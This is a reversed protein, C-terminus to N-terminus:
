GNSTFGALMIKEKGGSLTAILAFLLKNMGVYREPLDIRTIRTVFRKQLDIINKKELKRISNNIEKLDKVIDRTTESNSDLFKPDVARLRCVCLLLELYDRLQRPNYKKFSGNFSKNYNDFAKPIDEKVERKIERILVRTISDVLEPGQPYNYLDFIWDKRQWCVYGISRLLSKRKRELKKDNSLYVRCLSNYMRGFIDFSDENINIRRSLPIWYEPLDKEYFFKMFRNAIQKVSYQSYNDAFSDNYFDGFWIVISAVNYALVGKEQITLSSYASYAKDTYNLEVPNDQNLFAAFYEVVYNKFFLSLEQLASEKNLFSKHTIAYQAADFIRQICYFRGSAANNFSRLINIDKQTGIIDDNANIDKLTLDWKLHELNSLFDKVDKRLFIIDKETIDKYEEKYEPVPNDLQEFDVWEDNIILDSFKYDLPRVNLKFPNVAGYNYQLKLEVEINTKLPKDIHICAQKYPKLENEKNERLLPLYYKDSGAYLVLNKDGTTLIVGDNMSKLTIKQKKQSKDVLKLQQYEGNELTEISMDPIAEEWLAENPYEKLRKRIIQCGSALAESNLVDKEDVSEFLDCLVITKFDSRGSNLKSISDKCNKIHKVIEKNCLESKKIYVFQNDTEIPYKNNNKIVQSLLKTDVIQHGFRREETNLCSNIYEWAFDIYNGDNIADIKILTNRRFIPMKSANNKDYDVEIQVVSAQPGDFDVCYIFRPIKKFMRLYTYCAAVSRPVLLFRYGDYEIIKNRLTYDFDDVVDPMLCIFRYDCTYLDANKAPLIEESFSDRISLKAVDALFTNCFASFPSFLQRNGYFANERCEYYKGSGKEFEVYYPMHRSIIYDESQIHLQNNLIDIVYNREGEATKVRPTINDVKELNNAIDCSFSMLSDTYDRYNCFSLRGILENENSEIRKERQDYENDKFYREYQAVKIPLNKISPINDVELTSYDVNDVNPLNIYDYILGGKVNNNILESGDNKTDAEKLSSTIIDNIIDTNNNENISHQFYTKIMALEDFSLSDRRSTKRIGIQALYDVIDKWNLGFEEAVAFIRNSRKKKM